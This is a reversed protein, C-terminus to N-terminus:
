YENLERSGGLLFFSTALSHTICNGDPAAAIAQAPQQAATSEVRYVEPEEHAAPAHLATASSETPCSDQALTSPHFSTSPFAIQNKPNAETPINM